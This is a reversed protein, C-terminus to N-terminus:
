AQKTHRVKQKGVLVKYSIRKEGTNATHGARRMVRKQIM